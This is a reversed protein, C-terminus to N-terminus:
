VDAFLAVALWEKEIRFVSRDDRAATEPLAGALLFVVELLAVFIYKM